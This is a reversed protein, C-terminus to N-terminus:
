KGSRAAAYVMGFAGIGLIIYLVFDPYDGKSNIWAWGLFAAVILCAITFYTQLTVRNFLDREATKKKIIEERSIEPKPKIHKKIRAQAVSKRTNIEESQAEMKDLAKLIDDKDSSM